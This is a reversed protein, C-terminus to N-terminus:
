PWYGTIVFNRDARAWINTAPNFAYTYVWWGCAPNGTAVSVAHAVVLEGPTAPQAEVFAVTNASNVGTLTEVLYVGTSSWLSNVTDIAPGYKLKIHLTADTVFWACMKAIRGVNHNGASDHENVLQGHAVEQNTVLANYGTASEDLFERRVFSHASAISSPTIDKASPVSFLAIDYQRSQAAWVNGAVGLATSLQLIYVAITPASGSGMSFLAMHPKTSPGTPDCVNILGSMGPSAVFQSTTSITSTGASVAAFSSVWRSDFMFNSVGPNLKGLVTPIEMANHIYPAGNSRHEVRALADLFATNGSLRNLLAPGLPGGRSVYDQDIYDLM